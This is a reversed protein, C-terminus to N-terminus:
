STATVTGRENAAAGGACTVLVEVHHRHAEGTLRSSSTLGRLLISFSSPGGTL